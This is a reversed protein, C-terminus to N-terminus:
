EAFDSTEESITDHNPVSPSTQDVLIRESDEKSAVRNDDGRSCHMGDPVIGVSM